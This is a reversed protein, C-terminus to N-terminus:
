LGRPVPVLREIAIKAGLEARVTDLRFVITGEDFRRIASNAPVKFVFTEAVPPRVGYLQWPRTSKVMISGLSQSPKGPLILNTLILELSVTEPYRGANRIAAQRCVVVQVVCGSHNGPNNESETPKRWSTMTEIRRVDAAM